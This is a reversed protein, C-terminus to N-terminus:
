SRKCEGVTLLKDEAFKDVMPIMVTYKPFYEGMKRVDSM